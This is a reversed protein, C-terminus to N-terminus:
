REGVMELRMAVSSGTKVAMQAYRKKLSIMVPTCSPPPKSKINPTIKSRTPSRSYGNNKEGCLVRLARLNKSNKETFETSETTFLNTKITTRGHAYVRTSKFEATHRMNRERNWQPYQHFLILWGIIRQM